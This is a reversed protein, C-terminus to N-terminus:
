RDMEERTVRYVYVEEDVIMFKSSNESEKVFIIAKEVSNRVDLLEKFSQISIVSKKTTYADDKAETIYADYQKLLKKVYADYKSEKDKRNKIEVVLLALIGLTIILSAIAVYLLVKNVSGNTTKGVFVLNNNIAGTKTINIMQESLPIEVNLARNQKLEGDKSKYDIIYSVVLKCDASIGYNTKFENALSNYKKYDVSIVDNADIQDSTESNTKYIEQKTYIVKDSNQSDVIKIDALVKKDINFETKVDYTANYKYTIDIRDIISAIYQMGEDLYDKNYYKKDKLFVKYNVGGSEKYHVQGTAIVNKSQFYCIASVVGFVFVLFILIKEKNKKM